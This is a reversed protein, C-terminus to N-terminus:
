SPPVAARRHKAFGQTVKSELITAIQCQDRGESSLLEFVGSALQMYAPEELPEFAGTFISNSPRMNELWYDGYEVM